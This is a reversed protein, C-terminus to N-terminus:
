VAICKIINITIYVIMGQILITFTIIRLLQKM